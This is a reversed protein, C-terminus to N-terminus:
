NEECQVVDSGHDKQVPEFTKMIMEVLDTGALEESRFHSKWGLGSGVHRRGGQMHQEVKNLGM